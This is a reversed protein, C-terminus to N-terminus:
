PKGISVEEWRATQCTCAFWTSQTANHFRTEVVEVGVAQICLIVREIAKLSGEGPSFGVAIEAHRSGKVFVNTFVRRQLKANASDTNASDPVSFILTQEQLAGFEDRLRGEMKGVDTYFDGKFYFRNLDPPQWMRWCLSPINTYVQGVEVFTHERFFFISGDSM